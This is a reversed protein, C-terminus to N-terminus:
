AFYTAHEKLIFQWARLKVQAAANEGLTSQEILLDIDAMSRGLDSRRWWKSATGHDLDYKSSYKLENSLEMESAKQDGIAFRKTVFQSLKGISLIGNRM